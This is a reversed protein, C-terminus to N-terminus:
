LGISFKELMMKHDKTLEVTSYSSNTYVGEKIGKMTEVVKNYTLGSRIAIMAIIAYSLIYNIMHPPSTKFLYSNLSRFNM